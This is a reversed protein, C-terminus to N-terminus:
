SLIRTVYLQITVYSAGGGQIIVPVLIAGVSLKPVQSVFQSSFVPGASGNPLHLDSSLMNSGNLQINIILDGINPAQTITPVAVSIATPVGVRDQGVIFPPSIQNATVNGPCSFPISYHQNNNLNNNITNVLQKLTVYDQPETADGANQIKLGKFDQNKSSIRDKWQALEKIVIRADDLTKVERM